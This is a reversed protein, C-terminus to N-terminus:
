KILRQVAIVLGLSTGSSGATLVTGVMSLGSLTIEETNGSGGASGRGLLRSAASINQIKAYTVAEANIKTTTVASTAITPNPYTGTLDGGAAGTVIGTSKIGGTSDMTRFGEGDTYILSDGVSLTVKAMIRTTANDNLRITLIAAVTDANFVTVLKVQRQTSSAPSAVITVATTDNSTGNTQGPTYATSTIDVWSAVFPLQTTTVAGNLIIELSDNTDQLVIM